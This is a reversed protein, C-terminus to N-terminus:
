KTKVTLATVVSACAFLAIGGFTPPLSKTQLLFGGLPASLAIGINQCLTSIGFGTSSLRPPLNQAIIVRVLTPVTAASIGIGLVCFFLPLGTSYATLFLAFAMALPGM